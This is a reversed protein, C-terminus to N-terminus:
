PRRLQASLRKAMAIDAQQTKKTGGVLLVILRDGQRTFYVRYGPGYHIRMESVGDGVPKADGANGCALRLIRANVYALARRDRLSSTWALFEDTKVIDM